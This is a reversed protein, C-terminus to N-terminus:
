SREVVQRMKELARALKTSVTSPNMQLQAAIDVNRLGDRYKLAIMEREDDDLYALLQKITMLDDSNRQGGEVAFASDPADDLATMPRKAAFHSAMCNRAIATVWTGFKARMPDFSGFSRAAKLFAEAVVDEADSDGAMRARVWGYVTPYCERYLREFEHELSGEERNLNIIRAQHRMGIVGFEGQKRDANPVTYPISHLLLTEDCNM